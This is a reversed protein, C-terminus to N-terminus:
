EYVSSGEGLYSEYIHEFIDSCKRQNLEPTYARPPRGRHASHVQKLM